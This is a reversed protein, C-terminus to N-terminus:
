TEGRKDYIRDQIAQITAWKGRPFYKDPAVKMAAILVKTVVTEEFVVDDPIHSDGSLDWDLDHEAYYLIDGLNDLLQAINPFREKVNEDDSIYELSDRIKSGVYNWHGGSM